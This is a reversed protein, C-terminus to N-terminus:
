PVPLTAVLHVFLVHSSIMFSVEGRVKTVRTCLRLSSHSFDRLLNDRTFRTGRTALCDHFYQDGSNTTKGSGDDGATQEFMQGTDPDSADVAQDSLTALRVELWKAGQTNIHPHPVDAVFLIKGVKGGGIPDKIAGGIRTDKGTHVSFGASLFEEIVIKAPCDVQQFVAASVPHAEDQQAGTADVGNGRQRCEGDFDHIPCEPWM